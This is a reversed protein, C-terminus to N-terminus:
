RYVTLLFAFFVLLSVIRIVAVIWHYLIASNWKKLYKGLQNSRKAICYESTKASKIM